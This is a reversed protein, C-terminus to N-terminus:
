PNVRVIEHIAWGEAPAAGELALLGRTRWKTEEIGLARGALSTRLSRPLNRLLYSLRGSRLALRERAPLRLEGGEFCVAEESVEGRVEIGDVFVWTRPPCGEREWDIWVVSREPSLFRGWRLTDLPLRWPPLTMSLHEVYGPGRVVSSGIRVDSEASPMLCRWTVAGEPSEILTRSIAQAAGRWSASVDLRPEEWALAGELFGPEKGPRVTARTRPGHKGGTLVAGYAVSLPRWRLDARYGIFVDGAEDVADLYWKSLEFPPRHTAEM